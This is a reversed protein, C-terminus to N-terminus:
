DGVSPLLKKEISMDKIEDDGLEVAKFKELYFPRSELDYWEDLPQRAAWSEAAKKNRSWVIIFPFQTLEGHVRYPRYGKSRAEKMGLMNGPNGEDRHKRTFKAM